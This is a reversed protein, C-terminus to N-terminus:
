PGDIVRCPAIPGHAIGFDVIMQVGNPLPVVAASLVFTDDKDVADPPITVEFRDASVSLLLGPTRVESYRGPACEKNAPLYSIDAGIGHKQLAQELSEAGELRNVKVHVEGNNRGTVAYAPTPGLGPVLLAVALATAAAAALSVQWRRRHRRHPARALVPHDPAATTTTQGVVAQLETLLAAEFADLDSDPRHNM